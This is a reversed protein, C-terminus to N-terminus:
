RSADCSIGLGTSPGAALNVLQGRRKLSIGVRRSIGKPALRSLSCHSHVANMSNPSGHQERKM